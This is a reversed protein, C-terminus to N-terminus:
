EASDAEDANATEAMVQSAQAELEAKLREAEARRAEERAKRAEGDAMRREYEAKEETALRDLMGLLKNIERERNDWWDVTWVRCLHWGLRRLVSIQSVERDRTNKTSRYVDGDLLIGMLFEGEDYPNAIAIDVQFASHGVFTQCRFGHEEVAKCINQMIGARARRAEAEAAADSDIEGGEAYKLFDHFAVVGEPSSETVRIDSSYMSAFVKMTQRSRSFAVNLRKEGGAKNIPGFNNSVRGREDPGYGISFLIVDREDGQVNELNKIFLPDEGGNAWADLGPDNQFQKTLLNEILAQQKVNFTVVGVSQDKREPDGYREVIEAVVAEAEKVNIGRSYLGDVHVATVHRERDGSSPFTFMRNEYFRSNSFAILSEHASRYHWKLYQSPIGLALADDLISDLDELALDDVEPGSGMFFSTPPMQKPDGVIVADRARALAGVAKCPPIQSAEDFVVVDFMDNQQALYQAVSNPSMLMCPCLRKLIHPIREFLSRISIGRGKSGIAKRLLNLEGGTEPSDSADPVQSALRYYVEERAAQLMMDDLTKFHEIQENFAAGSFNSLLDDHSIINNILAYYLGRRGATELEKPSMGKEYAKVVPELGAAICKQRVQNYLGWDKLASPHEMLYRCLAEEGDIWDEARGGPTRELLANFRQEEGFMTEAAAGFARLAKANAPDRFLGFVEEVGGPLGRAMDRCKEATECAGALAEKGSFGGTIERTEDSLGAKIQALEKQNKQWAIIKWLLDPIEEYGLQRKAHTRIEGTIRAMAGGKGFLKKGAAEHRQLLDQMDAELFDADWVQLLQEKEADLTEQKELYAFAGSTDAGLLKLLLDERGDALLCIDALKKVALFEGRSRLAELGALPAAEA